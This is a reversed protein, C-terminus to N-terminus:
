DRERQKEASFRSFHIIASKIEDYTADVGAVFRINQILDYKTVFMSTKSGDFNLMKAISVNYNM